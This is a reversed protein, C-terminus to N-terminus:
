RRRAKAPRQRNTIKVKGVRKKREFNHVIHTGTLAFLSIATFFLQMFAMQLCNLNSLGSVLSLVAVVAVGIGM